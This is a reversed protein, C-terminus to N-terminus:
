AGGEARKRGEEIITMIDIEGSVEVPQSLKGETRDLIKELAMVSVVGKGTMKLWMADKFAARTEPEKLREELMEEFVETLLKRHPRGGANRREDFGKKFPIGLVAPKESNQANENM